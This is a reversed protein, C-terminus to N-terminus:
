PKNNREAFALNIGVIGIVTILIGVVLWPTQDAGIWFTIIGGVFLWAIRVFLAMGFSAHM